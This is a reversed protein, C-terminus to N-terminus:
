ASTASRAPKATATTVAVARLETSARTRDALGEPVAAAARAVEQAVEQALTVM